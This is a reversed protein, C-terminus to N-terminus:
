HAAQQPVSIDAAWIQDLGTPKLRRLLNPRIPHDHDSITTRPVFPRARPELLNDGRMLRLVRKANVILGPRRLEQAIRRYGYHRKALAVRQILGRL